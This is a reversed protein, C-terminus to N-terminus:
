AYACGEIESTLTHVLARAQLAREPERYCHLFWVRQLFNKPLPKNRDRFFLLVKDLDAMLLTFEFENGTESGLERRAYNRWEEAESGAEANSDRRSKYVTWLAFYPNKKALYDLIEQAFDRPETVVPTGQDAEATNTSPAGNFMMETLSAFIRGNLCELAATRDPEGLTEIRNLEGAFQAPFVQKRVKYFRRFLETRGMTLAFEQDAVPVEKRVYDLWANHNSFDAPCKDTYEFAM